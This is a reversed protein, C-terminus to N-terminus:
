DLAGSTGSLSAVPFQFSLPEPWLLLLHHFPMSFNVALAFLKLFFTSAGRTYEKKTVCVQFRSM